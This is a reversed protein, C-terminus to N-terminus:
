VRYGMFRCCYLLLCEGEFGLEGETGERGEGEWAGGRPGAGARRRAAGAVRGEGERHGEVVARVPQERGPEGGRSGRVPPRRGPARDPPRRGTAEEEASRGASWGAAEERVSRGEEGVSRGPRRRGSAGEQGGGGRDGRRGDGRRADGARGRAASGRGPAPDSSSTAPDPSAAVDRVQGVGSGALLPCSRATPSPQARGSRNRKKNKKYGTIAPPIASVTVATNKIVDMYNRVFLRISYANQGSVFRTTSTIVVHGVHAINLSSSQINKHTEHVKKKDM